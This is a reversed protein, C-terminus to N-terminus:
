QHPGHKPKDTQMAMTQSQQLALRDVQRVSQSNEEVSRQLAPALPVEVRNLVGGYGDGQIAFLSTRQPNTVIADIRTMNAQKAAAILSTSVNEIHGPAPNKGNLAHKISAFFRPDQETLKDVIASVKGYIGHYPSEPRTLAASADALAQAPQPQLNGPENARRPILMNVPADQAAKPLAVGVGSFHAKILSSAKDDLTPGQAIFGSFEGKKQPAVKDRWEGDVSREYEHSSNVGRTVLRLNSTDNYVDLMDAKSIVHNPFIERMKDRVVEFPIEHDIDLADRTTLQKSAACRFLPVKQSKGGGPTPLEVSDVYANQLAHNFWKDLVRTDFRLDSRTNDDTWPQDITAKTRRAIDREPDFAPYVVSPDFGLRDNVWRQWQQSDKGHTKLVEDASDRARNYVSPVVRLNEIDNYARVADARNTAGKAGLHARWPTKHDIDLADSAHWTKTEPFYFLRLHRDQLSVNASPLTKNAGENRMWEATSDYFQPREGTKPDYGAKSMADGHEPPKLGRWEPLLVTKGSQLAVQHIKDWQASMAGGQDCAGFRQM